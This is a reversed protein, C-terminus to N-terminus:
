PLLPIQLKVYRMLSGETVQETLKLKCGLHQINIEGTIKAHHNSSILERTIMSALRM